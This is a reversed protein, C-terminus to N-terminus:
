FERALGKLQRNAAPLLDFILLVSLMYFGQFNRTQVHTRGGGPGSFAFSRSVKTLTRAGKELFRAILFSFRLCFSLFIRLPM